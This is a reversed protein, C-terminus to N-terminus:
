SIRSLEYENGLLMIKPQILFKIVFTDFKRKRQTFEEDSLITYNLERDEQEYREIISELLNLNPSGVVLLDLELSSATRGNCFEKSLVIFKVDGLNDKNKLIKLAIGEEKYVLSVLDPFIQNEPNIKYFIKNGWPNKILIGLKTLKELERRIANIEVGLERVLARVHYEETNNKILFKILNVRVESIFLEKLM